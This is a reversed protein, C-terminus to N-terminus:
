AVTKPQSQLTGEDFEWWLSSAGVGDDDDDDDDDDDKDGDRCM